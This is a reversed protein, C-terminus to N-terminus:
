AKSHEYLGGTVNGHYRISAPASFYGLEELRGAIVDADWIHGGVFEVFDEIRNM